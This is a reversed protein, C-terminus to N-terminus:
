TRGTASRAAQNDGGLFMAVSISAYASQLTFPLKMTLKTARAEGMRLAAAVWLTRGSSSVEGVSHNIDCVGVLAHVARPDGHDGTVARGASAGPHQDDVVLQFPAPSSRRCALRATRVVPPRAARARSRRPDFRQGESSPRPSREDGSAAMWPTNTLQVGRCLVVLRVCQSAVSSSRVRRPACVGFTGGHEEHRVPADRSRDGDFDRGSASSNM